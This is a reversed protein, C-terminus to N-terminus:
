VPGVRTSWSRNAELEGSGMSTGVMREVVLSRILIGPARLGEM